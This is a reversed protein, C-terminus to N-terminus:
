IQAHVFHRSAVTFTGAKRPHEFHIDDGIMKIVTLGQDLESPDCQTRGVLKQLTGPKEKVKPDVKAKDGPKFQSNRAM